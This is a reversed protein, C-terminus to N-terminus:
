RVSYLGDSEIELIARRTVGDFPVPLTTAFHRLKERNVGGADLLPVLKASTAWDLTSANKDIDFGHQSGAILYLEIADILPATGIPVYPDDGDATAYRVREVIGFLSHLREAVVNSAVHASLDGISRGSKRAARRVAADCSVTYERTAISAGTGWAEGAARQNPIDLTLFTFRRRLGQSLANVFQKDVSNITAIIRFRRPVALTDNGARQYGLTIEVPEDSGLVSFLEGFAKDPHARNLEDILLWEAQPNVPDDFHSPIRGACRIVAETFHGDVSIIEEKGDADVRLEQRGVVEFTSWDEHATVPLLESNFADALARALSSKGTGPPGQIVLHGAVLAAACQGLFGEPVLLGQARNALREDLDAPIDLDIEAVERIRPIAPRFDDPWMANNAILGSATAEPM